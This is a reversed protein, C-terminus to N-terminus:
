KLAFLYRKNNNIDEEFWYNFDSLYTDFMISLAKEQEPSIEFAIICNEDVYKSANKIMKEYISLGHNEAFLAMHPEYKLVSEQVFSERDIYPPNSIIVNYKADAVNDFCDSFYFNVKTNNEVNNIIAVDLAAKSIDVSDVIADSYAKNMAIAICGTGSGIDIIRKANINNRKIYEITRNVLEETESRPILTDKTVKFKLGKFNAYGLIMEVPKGEQFEKLREVLVSNDYQENQNLILDVDSISFTEKILYLIDKKSVSDKCDQLAESIIIGLTKIM